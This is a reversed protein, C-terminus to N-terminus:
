GQGAQHNIKFGMDGLLSAVSVCHLREQYQGLLVFLEDTFKDFAKRGMLDSFAVVMSSYDDNDFKACYLREDHACLNRFNVLINAARLLDHPSLMGQGNKKRQASKAIITCARQQDSRQMLQYFHVMNGFTLDNSLVWLPVVGYRSLYHAIFPRQKKDPNLKGNLVGMLTPMNRNWYETPTPKAARPMLTEDPACFNSRDLYDTHGPHGKCFAYVVANRFLAEAEVLYKFTVSRLDRDFLFLDYIWRFEVGEKYVDDNSAKMAERDLFPSKYGNVIAYYSERELAKKTDEDTRVGRSELLSVLEDITKFEKAM